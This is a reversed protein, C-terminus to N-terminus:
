VTADRTLTRQSQLQYVHVRERERERERERTDRVRRMPAQTNTYVRERLAADLGLSDILGSLCQRNLCEILLLRARGWRFAHM